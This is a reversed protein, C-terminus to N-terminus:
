IEKKLRDKGYGTKKLFEEMTASLGEGDYQSAFKKINELAEPDLEDSQRADEGKNGTNWFKQLKAREKEANYRELDSSGRIRIGSIKQEAWALVNKPNSAYKEQDFTEDKMGKKYHVLLPIGSIDLEMCLKQEKDCEVYRAEVDPDDEYKDMVEVFNNKWLKSERHGSNGFLLLAHPKYKLLQAPTSFFWERAGHDWGYYLATAMVVVLRLVVMANRTYRSEQTEPKPSQVAEAATAEETM